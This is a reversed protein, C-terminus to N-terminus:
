SRGEKVVCTAQRIEGLHYATHVLIAMAQGMDYDGDWADFNKMTAMLRQYTEKLASKSAEWEEPTVTTVTRWIEGWDPDDMPKKALFSEMLEIYLRVHAVQAAITACTASVPKSAEEASITDLTELLSTGHELYITGSKEFTESFVAFLGGKFRELTLDTM